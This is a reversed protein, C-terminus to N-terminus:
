RKRAITVVTAGNPLRRLAWWDLMGIAARLRSFRIGRLRGMLITFLHAGYYTREEEVGAASLLVHLDRSRLRRLHSPEDTAFRGYGDPTPEFGGRLRNLTWEFSLPNACPTTIVALGGPRLVRGIERTAEAVDAVHELVEVSLVLDFSADPAGLREDDMLLLEAGPHERAAIELGRASVDAGCLAAQPFVEGLVEFWRGEGCGYDLIRAPREGRRALLRLVRSVQELRTAEYVHLFHDMYGAEYRADYFARQDSRALPEIQPM